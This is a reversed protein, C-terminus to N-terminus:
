RGKLAKSVSESIANGGIDQVHTTVGNDIDRVVDVLTEALNLAQDRTLMLHDIKLGRFDLLARGDYTSGVIFQHDAEGPGHQGDAM